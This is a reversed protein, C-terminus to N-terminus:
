VQKNVSQGIRNRSIGASVLWDIVVDVSSQEPAFFDIVEGATMHKGYDSSGPYSRYVSHNATTNWTTDM